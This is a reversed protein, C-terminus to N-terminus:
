RTRKPAEGERRWLRLMSQFEDASEDAESPTGLLLAFDNVPSVGQQAALQEITM